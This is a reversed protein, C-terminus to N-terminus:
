KQPALAERLRAVISPKIEFLGAVTKEVEESKRM